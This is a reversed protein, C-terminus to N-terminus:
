AANRKQSTKPRAQGIPKFRVNRLKSSGDPRWREPWLVHLEIGLTQAIRYELITSAAPRRIVESVARSAYGWSVSLASLSGYAKRLAAKIDEQHWGEAQQSM